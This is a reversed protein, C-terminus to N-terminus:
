TTDHTQYYVLDASLKILHVISVTKIPFFDTADHYSTNHEAASLDQADRIIDVNM